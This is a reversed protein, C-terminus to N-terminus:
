NILYTMLLVQQSDLKIQASQAYKTLAEDLISNFVERSNLVLSSVLNANLIFESHEALDESDLIKLIRKIQSISEAKNTQYEAYLNSINLFLHQLYQYNQNSLM